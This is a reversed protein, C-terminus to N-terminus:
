RQIGAHGKRRVALVIENNWPDHVSVNGEQKTVTLGADALRKALREQEEMNPVEVM